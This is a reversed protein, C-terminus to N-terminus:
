PQTTIVGVSTQGNGSNQYEQSSRYCHLPAPNAVGDITLVLGRSTSEAQIPSVRGGYNVFGRALNGDRTLDVSFPGGDSWLSGHYKGDGASDKLELMAVNPAAHFGVFPDDATCASSQCSMCGVSFFMGIAGLMIRRISNM